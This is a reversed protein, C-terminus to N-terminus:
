GLALKGNIKNVQEPTLRLKRYTRDISYACVWAPARANECGWYRVDFSEADMIRVQAVDRSDKGSRWVKANHKKLLDEFEAPSISTYGTAAASQGCLVLAALLGIASLRKRM